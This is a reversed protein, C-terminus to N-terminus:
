LEENGELLEELKEVATEHDTVTITHFGMRRAAETNSPLDDLFVARQPIVHYKQILTEYIEKEPKIHKIEYSIVSGDVLKLFKFKEKAVQFLTQGYNSLILICYGREKLGRIWQESFDYEWVFDEKRTNWVKWIEEKLDPANDYMMQLIEEDSKAGRDLEAWAVSLFMAKALRQFLEESFDFSELYEKWRFKALVNGIDFVITDIKNM